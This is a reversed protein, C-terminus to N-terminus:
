FSCLKKCHFIASSELLFIAWVVPSLLHWDFFSGMSPSMTKELSWFVCCFSKVEGWNPAIQIDDATHPILTLTELVVNIFFMFHEMTDRAMLANLMTIRKWQCSLIWGQYFSKKASSMGWWCCVCGTTEGAGTTNYASWSITHDAWPIELSLSFSFLITTCFFLFFITANTDQM